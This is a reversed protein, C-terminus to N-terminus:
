KLSITFQVATQQALFELAFLFTKRKLQVHILKFIPLSIKCLRHCDLTNKTSMTVDDTCSSYITRVRSLDKRNAYRFCLSIIKIVM